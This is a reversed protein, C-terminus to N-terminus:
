QVLAKGADDGVIGAAATCGDGAFLGALAHGFNGPIEGVPEAVGVALIGTLLLGHGKLLVPQQGTDRGPQQKHAARLLIFPGRGPMLVKAANGGGFGPLKKMQRTKHVGIAKGTGGFGQMFAANAVMHAAAPMIQATLVPVMVHIKQIRLAPM